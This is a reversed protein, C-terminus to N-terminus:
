HHARRERFMYRAGIFLIVYFGGKSYTPFSARPWVFLVWFNKQGPDTIGRLGFGITLTFVFTSLSTLQKSIM